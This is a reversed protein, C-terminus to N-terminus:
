STCLAALALQLGDRKWAAPHQADQVAKAYDITDDNPEPLCNLHLSACNPHRTLRPTSAVAAPLPALRTELSAHPQGVNEGELWSSKAVYIDGDCIRWIGPFGQLHRSHRFPVSAIASDSRWLETGAYVV